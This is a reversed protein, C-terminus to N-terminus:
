GAAIRQLQLIDGFRSAADDYRAEIIPEYWAAIKDMETPWVGRDASSHIIECLADWVDGGESPRVACPM